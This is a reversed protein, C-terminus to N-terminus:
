GAAVPAPMPRGTSDRWAALRHRAWPLPARVRDTHLRIRGDVQHDLAWLVASLCWGADFFPALEAALDALRVRNGWGARGAIERVASIRDRQTVPIRRGPWTTHNNFTSIGRTSTPVVSKSSICSAGLHTPNPNEDVLDNIEPSEVGAVPDDVDTSSWWTAAAALQPTSTLAYIPARGAGAFPGRGRAHQPALPDLVVRILGAERWAGLYESITALCVQTVAALQERTTCSTLTRWHARFVLVRFALRERDVRDQRRDALQLEAYADFLRMAARQDRPQQLGGLRRRWTKPLAYTGDPRIVRREIANDRADRRALARPRAPAPSGTHPRRRTARARAIARLRVAEPHERGTSPDVPVPLGGRHRVCEAALVYRSRGRRHRYCPLCWGSDSSSVGSQEKRADDGPSIRSM